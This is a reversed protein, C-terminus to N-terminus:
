QRVGKSNLPIRDPPDRPAPAPAAPVSPAPAAGLFDRRLIAIAAAPEVGSAVLRTFATIGTSSAMFDAFARDSAAGSGINAVDRSAGASIRAQEIAARTAEGARWNAQKQEFIALREQVERSIRGENYGGYRDTGQMILRYRERAEANTLGENRALEALAGREEARRESAAARVGPLAEAIGTSAAQLLSGPTTAMRAGIQGLAMWMDEKRRKKQDEPNLLRDLYTNLQARRTTSQPALEDIREGMSVPDSLFGYYDLPGEPPPLPTSRRGEVSVEDLEFVDDEPDVIGGINFAVLGGGRYGDNFGGNRNEDFMDDPLPLDSLGGGSMYPPVMGGMAM